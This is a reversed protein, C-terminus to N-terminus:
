APTRGTRHKGPATARCNAYRNVDVYVAMRQPWRALWEDVSAVVTEADLAHHMVMLQVREGDLARAIEFSLTDQVTAENLLHEDGFVVGYRQLDTNIRQRINEITNVVKTVTTPTIPASRVAAARRILARAQARRRSPSSPPQM